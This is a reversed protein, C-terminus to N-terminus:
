FSRSLQLSPASPQGAIAVDTGRQQQQSWDLQALQLLALLPALMSNWQNQGAQTAQSTIANRALGYKTGMNALMDQLVTSTAPRGAGTFQDTLGRRAQEEQANVLGVSSNILEQSVQPGKQLLDVLMSTFDTGAGGKGSLNLSPAGSTGGFLSAIPSAGGSSFGGVGGGSSSGPGFSVPPGGPSTGFISAGGQLSPFAKYAM